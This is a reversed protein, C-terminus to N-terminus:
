PKSWPLHIENVQFAQPERESNWPATRWGAYAVVGGLANVVGTPLPRTEVRITGVFATYEFWAVPNERTPPNVVIALSKVIDTFEVLSVAVVFDHMCGLNVAGVVFDLVDGMGHMVPQARPQTHCRMCERPDRNM